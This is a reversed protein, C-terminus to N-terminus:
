RDDWVTREAELYANADGGWLGRLVGAYSTRIRRLRLTDIDEPDVEVVFTEGPEIGAAQVVADPITIQNRERFRAEASVTKLTTM